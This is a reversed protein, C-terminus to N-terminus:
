RATGSELWMGTQALPTVAELAKRWAEQHGCRMCVFLDTAGMHVMALSLAM